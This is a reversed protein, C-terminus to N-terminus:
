LFLPNSCPSITSPKHLTCNIPGRQGCFSLCCYLCVSENNNSRWKRSLHSSKVTILFWRTQQIQDFCDHFVLVDVCNDIFLYEMKLFMIRMLYGWKQIRNNLHQERHKNCKGRQKAKTLFSSKNHVSGRRM